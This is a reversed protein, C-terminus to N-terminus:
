ASQVTVTTVTRGTQASIIIKRNHPILLVTQSINLVGQALNQETNNSTNCVILYPVQLGLADGVVEDAVLPDLIASISQTVRRMYATNMRRGNAWGLAAVEQQAIYSQTLTDTILNEGNNTSLNFETVFGMGGAPIPGIANIQAAQIQPYDDAPSFNWEAGQSGQITVNEQSNWPLNAGQFGAAFAAPSVWVLQATFPDTVQQWNYMYQGWQNNIPVGAPVTIALLASSPTGKPISAHVFVNHAAGWTYAQAAATADSQGALWVGDLSTGGPLSALAQLGSKKGTTADITGVYSVPLVDAIGDTGGSLTFAGAALPTSPFYTATNATPPSAAGAAPMATITIPATASTSTGALTETGSTESLYIKYGTPVQGGTPATPPTLTVENTQTTGTLSIEFETGTTTEGAANTWTMKVYLTGNPLTGGTTVVTDTPAVSPAPVTPQLFNVLQANQSAAFLSTAGSPISALVSVNTYPEVRQGRQVTVNNTGTIAGATVTVTVGNGYSGTYVGQALAGMHPTTVTTDLLTASAYTDTGDSVRLNWLSAAGQLWFPVSEIVGTLGSGTTGMANYQATPSSTFIPTNVPGWNFTGVIGMVQGTVSSPSAPPPQQTLFVGDYNAAASTAVIPM